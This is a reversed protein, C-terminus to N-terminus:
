RCCRCSTPTSARLPRPLVKDPSDPRSNYHETLAQYHSKLFKFPKPVSTMATTASRVITKLERLSSM